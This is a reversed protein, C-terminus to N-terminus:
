AQLAGVTYARLETKQEATEGPKAHLLTKKHDVLSSIQTSFNSRRKPNIFMHGQKM